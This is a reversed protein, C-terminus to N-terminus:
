SMILTVWPNWKIFATRVSQSCYLYFSLQQTTCATRSNDSTDSSTRVTSVTLAKLTILPTLATLATLLTSVAMNMNWWHQNHKLLTARRPEGTTKPLLYSTVSTFSCERHWSNNWQSMVSMYLLNRIALTLTLLAIRLSVDLPLWISYSIITSGLGESLVLCFNRADIQKSLGWSRGPSVFAQIHWFVSISTRLSSLKFPCSNASSWYSWRGRVRKRVEGAGLKTECNRCRVRRRVYRQIRGSRRNM